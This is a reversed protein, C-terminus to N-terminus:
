PKPDTGAKAPPCPFPRGPSFISLVCRRWCCETAGSLPVGGRGRGREGLAAAILGGRAAAASRSFPLPLPPPSLPHASPLLARIATCVLFHHFIPSPSSRGWGPPNARQFPMVRLLRSSDFRKVQVRRLSLPRPWARMRMCMCMCICM